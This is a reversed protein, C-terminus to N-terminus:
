PLIAFHFARGTHAPADDLEVGIQTVVHAVLFELLTITMSFGNYNVIFYLNIM